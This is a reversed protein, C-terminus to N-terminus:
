PRVSREFVKTDGFARLSFVREICEAGQLADLAVITQLLLGCGAENYPLSAPISRKRSTQEYADTLFDCAWPSQVTDATQRLSLAAADMADGLESLMKLVPIAYQRPQRDRYLFQRSIGQRGM